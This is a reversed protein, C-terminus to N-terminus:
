SYPDIADSGNINSLFVAAIMVLSVDSYTVATSASPLQFYTDVPCQSDAKSKRWKSASRAAFARSYLRFGSRKAKM